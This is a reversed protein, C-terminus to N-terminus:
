WHVSQVAKGVGIHGTECGRYGGRYGVVVVVVVLVLMFVADLHATWVVIKRAIQDVHAHGVGRTTPDDSSGHGGTHATALCKKDREVKHGGAQSSTM